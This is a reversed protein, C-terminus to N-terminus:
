HHINQCIKIHIKDAKSLHFQLSISSNNLFQSLIINDSYQGTYLTAQDCQSQAGGVVSLTIIHREHTPDSVLTM